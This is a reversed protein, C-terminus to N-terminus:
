YPPKGRINRGPMTQKRSFRIRPLLMGTREKYSRYEAGLEAELMREEDPIRIWCLVLFTGAAGLALLWNACLFSQGFISLWIASYMPHRIHRYPGSEILTHEADLELVPSWRTGLFHHVVWFFVIGALMLVAGFIRIWDPLQVRGANLIDSFVYLASSGWWGLTVLSVLVAERLASIRKKKSSPKYRWQYPARVLAYCAILAFCIIKYFQEPM